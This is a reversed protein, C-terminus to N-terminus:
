PCTRFVPAPRLPGFEWDFPVIRSCDGVCETFPRRRVDCRTLRHRTGDEWDSVFHDADLQRVPGSHCINPSVAETEGHQIDGRRTLAYTLKGDDVSWRGANHNTMWSQDAQFLLQADDCSEGDVAWRGVLAAQTAADKGPTCSAICCSILLWPLHSRMMRSM